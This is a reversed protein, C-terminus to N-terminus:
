PNTIYDPWGTITGIREFLGPATMGVDIASVHVGKLAETGYGMVTGQYTPVEGTLDVLATIQLVLTGIAVDDDFVTVVDTLKIAYHMPTGDNNFVIQNDITTTYDVSYPETNMTFTEDGVTLEVTDGTVWERDRVHRTKISDGDPPTVWNRSWVPSGSGSCVLEFYEFKENSKEDGPMALVMPTAMAVLFIFALITGLVKKNV